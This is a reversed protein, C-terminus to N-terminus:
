EAALEGMDLAELVAKVKPKIVEPVEAYTKVGKIILTAYVEAMDKDEKRKFKYLACHGILTAVCIISCLAIAKM